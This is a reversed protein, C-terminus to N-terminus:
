WVLSFVLVALVFASIGAYLRDRQAAFGLVAFAVRLFPNVLLLVIGIMVVSRREDVAQWDLARQALAPLSEFYRPEGRFLHDGPPEGPHAALYWALGCLIVVSALIVGWLMLRALLRQIREDNM